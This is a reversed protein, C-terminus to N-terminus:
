GALRVRVHFSGPVERDTAVLLYGGGCGSYMAGGYEAQYHRLIGELDVAITAHRVTGPLLAAWALMCENM